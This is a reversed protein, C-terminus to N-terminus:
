HLKSVRSTFYVLSSVNKYCIIKEDNDSEKAWFYTSSHGIAITSIKM